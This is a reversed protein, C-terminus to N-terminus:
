IIPLVLQIAMTILAKIKGAGNSADGSTLSTFYYEEQVSGVIIDTRSIELLGISHKVEMLNQAGLLVMTHVWCSLMFCNIPVVGLM